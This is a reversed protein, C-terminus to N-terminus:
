SRSAAALDRATKLIATDRLKMMEHLIYKERSLSTETAEIATIAAENDAHWRLEMGEAAEKDTLNTGVFKTIKATYCYSTQRMGVAYRWEEVIGLERIDTIEYGTEEIVERRLASLTDEGDDIGGGPLKSSGTSTFYMVAIRGAEDSLVARAAHRHRDIPKDADSTWGLKHQDLEAILKM